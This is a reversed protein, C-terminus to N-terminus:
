PIAGGRRPLGRTLGSTRGRSIRCVLSWVVCIAGLRLKPMGASDSPRPPQAVAAWRQDRTNLALASNLLAPDVQYTFDHRPHFDDAVKGYDYDYIVRSLTVDGRALGDVPFGGAIGVLLVHRPGYRKVTTSIVDAM